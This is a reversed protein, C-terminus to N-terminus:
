SWDWGLNSEMPRHFESLSDKKLLSRWDMELFYRWRLGGLAGEVPDLLYGRSGPRRHLNSPFGPWTETYGIGDSRHFKSRLHVRNLRSARLSEGM